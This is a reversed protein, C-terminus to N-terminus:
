GNQTVSNTNYNYYAMPDVPQNDVEVMYHLHPGTSWGTSGELGIPDGQQVNDGAKVLLKDMHGYVTSIHDCHNIKVSWGLGGVDWGAWIVQGSQAAHIPNGEAAAIDV